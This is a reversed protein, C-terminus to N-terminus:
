SMLHTYEDTTQFHQWCSWTTQFKTSTDKSQHILEEMEAVKAIRKFWEVISPPKSSKWLPPICMKAANLLHLRLSHHYDKKPIPSHHLFMQAPTLNIQYTTINIIIRQVEKWFPQILPCSWWIHLLSGDRESCRWCNPTITPSIKHLRSPTKYWRSLVKFGNEQVSVNVSGKHIYTYINEWDEESLDIALDREWNRTAINSKPNSDSFLLSYIVSIM